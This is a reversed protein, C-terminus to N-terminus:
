RIPKTKMTAVTTNMPPTADDAPLSIVVNFLMYDDLKELVDPPEVM